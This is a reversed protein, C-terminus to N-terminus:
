HRVSRKPRETAERIHAGLKHILAAKLQRLEAIRADIEDLKQQLFLAGAQPTLQGADWKDMLGKIEALTFGATHLSKIVSLREVAEVAYHRYNNEGRRIYRKALLGKKEYFRITHSTLGTKQALERILM